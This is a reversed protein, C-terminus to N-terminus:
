DGNAAKERSKKKPKEAKKTWTGQDSVALKDVASEREPEALPQPAPQSMVQRVGEAKEPPASELQYVGPMLVFAPPLMGKPEEASFTLWGLFLALLLVHAGVSAVTGGVSYRRNQYCAAAVNLM